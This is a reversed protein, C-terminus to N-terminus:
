YQLQKGLYKKMFGKGSKPDGRDGITGKPCPTMNEKKFNEQNAQIKVLLKLELEANSESASSKISFDGVYRLRKGDLWLEAEGDAKSKLEFTMPEEKM